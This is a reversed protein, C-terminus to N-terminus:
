CAVFLSCVFALFLLCRVVCMVCCDLFMFCSGLLWENCVDYLLLLCCLVCCGGFLVCLPCCVVLLLHDVCLLRCVDRLACCAIVLLWRGVAM